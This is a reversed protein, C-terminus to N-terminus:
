SFLSTLFSKVVKGVSTGLSGTDIGAGEMFDDLFNDFLGPEPNFIDDFFGSIADGITIDGIDSTSSEEAAFASISMSFVIALALVLTVIKKM